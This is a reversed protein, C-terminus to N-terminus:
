GPKNIKRFNELIQTLNGPIRIVEGLPLAAKGKIGNAKAIIWWFNTNGYYRYALTDLRDGQKPYIFQDGDNIPITPYYTTGYTRMGSKDIRTKTTSYRKM